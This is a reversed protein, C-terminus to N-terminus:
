LESWQVGYQILSTLDVHEGSIEKIDMKINIGWRRNSILLILLHTRGQKM